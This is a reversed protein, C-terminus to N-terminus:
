DNRVASRYQSRNLSDKGSIAEETEFVIERLLKSKGEDSKWGGEIGVGSVCEV